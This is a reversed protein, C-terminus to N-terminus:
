IFQKGTETLNYWNLCRKNEKSYPALINKEILAKVESPFGLYVMPANKNGEKFDKIRRDVEAIIIKEKWTFKM